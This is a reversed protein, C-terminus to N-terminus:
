DKDNVGLMDWGFEIEDKNTLEEEEFVDKIDKKKSIVIYLDGWENILNKQYTNEYESEENWPVFIYEESDDEYKVVIATIDSYDSIRKFPLTKDDKTFGSGHESTDFSRHIQIVFEDCEESDSISNCAQRYISRSLGEINIQGIVKVPVYIVECNELVLQIEKVEKM